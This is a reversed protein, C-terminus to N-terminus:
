RRRGLLEPEGVREAHHRRPWGDSLFPRLFMGRRYGGASLSRIDGGEDLAIGIRQGLNGRDAEGRHLGSEIVFYVTKRAGAGCCISDPMCVM